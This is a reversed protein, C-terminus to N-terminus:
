THPPYLRFIVLRPDSRPTGPALTSTVPPLSLPTHSHRAPIPVTTSSPPPPSTTTSPATLPAAPPAPALPPHSPIPRPPRSCPFRPRPLPYLMPSALSRSFALSNCRVISVCVCVCVCVCLWVVACVFSLRCALQVFIVEWNKRYVPLSRARGPFLLTPIRIRPPQSPLAALGGRYAM